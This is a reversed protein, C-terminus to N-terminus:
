VRLRNIDRILIIHLGGKADGTLIMAWVAAVGLLENLPLFLTQMMIRLTPFEAPCDSYLTNVAVQSIAIWLKL